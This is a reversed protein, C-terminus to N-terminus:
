VRSVRADRQQARVDRAISALGRDRIGVSALQAVTEYLYDCSRGLVGEATALTRVVEARPVSGAYMDHAKNIVFTIARRKPGAGDVVVWRPSYSGVIMERKWLVWTEQELADAAIRYAVGTCSGGAELGLMLAPNDRTGRGVHTRLCFRRHYGLLRGRRREAFHFAPNWILSGYAFVWLDGGAHESLTDARSRALEADTLVRLSPDADRLMEPLRGALIAERTLPTKASRRMPWVTARATLGM